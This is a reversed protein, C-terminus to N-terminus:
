VNKGEKSDLKYMIFDEWSLGDQMQHDLHIIYIVRAITHTPKRHEKFKSETVM